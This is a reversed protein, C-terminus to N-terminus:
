MFFLTGAMSSRPDPVRINPDVLMTAAGAAPGLPDDACKETRKVGDHTAEDETKQSNLSHIM